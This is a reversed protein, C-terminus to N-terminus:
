NNAFYREIGDAMGRAMTKKYQSTALRSSERPHTMFGVEVLVSPMQAGVLVWFPGERVGGDKVKKYKKNLSGLMGRQLDIALKNSALINRHNLLNLYSSKGYRNMDSLDASNEKAAVRKARSSRSPSM